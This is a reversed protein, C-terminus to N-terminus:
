TNATTFSEVYNNARGLGSLVYPLQLASYATQICQSQSSVKVSGDMSNIWYFVAGTLYSGKDINPGIAGYGKLYFNNQYLYNNYFAIM